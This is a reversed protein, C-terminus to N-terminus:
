KKGVSNYYLFLWLLICQIIGTCATIYSIKAMNNELRESNQTTINDSLIELIGHIIDCRKNLLDARTKIDLYKICTEYLSSFASYEWVFEPEGLINSVLNLNFSLKHLKGMIKMIDQRKKGVKGEKEVEDPLNKVADITNDVLEEFYDLKVSQAIAISLVMKTHVNEDGLFIKDNVIQSHESIGYMFNEIEVAKLDYPNEQIRSILRLIGQEESESLGWMVVVGYHLFYVDVSRRNSDNSYSKKSGTMDIPSIEDEDILFSIYLCEGFYMQIKETQPNERLLKYLNKLNYSEATCYATIRKLECKPENQVIPIPSTLPKLNYADRLTRLEIRSAKRGGTNGEENLESLYVQQSNISRSSM